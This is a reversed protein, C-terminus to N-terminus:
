KKGEAIEREFFETIEARPIRVNRVGLRVHKIRGARVLENVRNIGLGTQESFEAQSVTPNLPTTVEPKQIPELSSLAALVAKSIVDALTGPDVNRLM